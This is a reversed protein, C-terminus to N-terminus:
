WQRDIWDQDSEPEAPSFIKDIWAGIADLLRKLTEM